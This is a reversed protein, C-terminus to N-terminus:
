RELSRRCQLTEIDWLYRIFAFPYERKAVQLPQVGPLRVLQTDESAGDLRPHPRLDITTTQSIVFLSIIYEGKGCVDFKRVPLSCDAACDEPSGWDLGEGRPGTDPTCVRNEVHDDEWQHHIYLQAHCKQRGDSIAYEPIVCELVQPHRSTWEPTTIGGYNQWLAPSSMSGWFKTCIHCTHCVRFINWLEEEPIDPGDFSIKLIPTPFRDLDQIHM